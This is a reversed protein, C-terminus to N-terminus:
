HRIPPHARSRITFTIIMHFDFITIIIVIVTFYPLTQVGFSPFYGLNALTSTDLYVQLSTVSSFPWYLCNAFKASDFYGQLSIVIQHLLVLLLFPLHRFCVFPVM